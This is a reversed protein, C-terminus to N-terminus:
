LINRKIVGVVRFLKRVSSFPIEFDPYFFEGKMPGSDQIIHNDSVCRIASKDKNDYLRKLYRNDETEVVYVAGPEIFSDLHPRLGVICGAPYNPTMSNGYVRLAAESDRLLSGIEIMGVPRSIPEMSMGYSGGAAAEVDYLPIMRGTPVSDDQTSTSPEGKLMEGEGTLLWNPKLGFEEGWKKALNKGFPKGNFLASVAPQSVGLRNAIDTQSLSIQEFYEKLKSGITLQKNDIM